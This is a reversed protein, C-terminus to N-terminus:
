RGCSGGIGQTSVSPENVLLNNPVKNQDVHANRNARAPRNGRAELAAELRVHRRGGWQIGMDAECRFCVLLYVDRQTRKTGVLPSM